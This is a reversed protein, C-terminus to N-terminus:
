AVEQAEFEYTRQGFRDAKREVAQLAYMPEREERAMRRRYRAIARQWREDIRLYGRQVIRYSLWVTLAMPEVVQPYEGPTDGVILLESQLCIYRQGKHELLDGPQPRLALLQAESYWKRCGPLLDFGYWVTDNLISMAHVPYVRQGLPIRVPQGLGFTHAPEPPRQSLPGAPLYGHIYPAPLLPYATM